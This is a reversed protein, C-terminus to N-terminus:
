TTIETEDYLADDKNIPNVNLRRAACLKTMEREYTMLLLKLLPGSM